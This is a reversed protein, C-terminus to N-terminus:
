NTNKLQPHLVIGLVAILLFSYESTYGMSFLSILGLSLISALFMMRNKLEHIKKRKKIYLSLFKTYFLFYFLDGFLGFSALVELWDNHAYGGILSFSGNYGYGFLLNIEPGSFSKNIIRAYMDGRNSGDDQGTVLSEIRGYLYDNNIFFERAYYVIVGLLLIPVIIKFPSKKHTVQESNYYHLFYHGWFVSQLAFAVIAGRKASMMIFFLCIAYGIIQILRKKYSLAFLCFLMVFNYSANNTVDESMFDIQRTLESIYYQPIFVLLLLTTFVPLRWKALYGQSSFFSFIFYSFFVLTVKKFDNFTSFEGGVIKPSLVWYVCNILWFCLIIKGEGGVIKKEFCQVICLISLLIWYLAILKAFFSGGPYLWGQAFYLPISFLFITSLHKM